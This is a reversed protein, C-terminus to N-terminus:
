KFGLKKLWGSLGFTVSKFGTWANPTVTCNECQATLDKVAQDAGGGGHTIFPIVTKGSLDAQTIFSSVAPAITGWWTPSGVFVVDYSSTDPLAKLEPRFNNNIEQKAQETAAHYDTPYSHMTHIEFLDGGTKEQIEQAVKKTNGSWSYYAILVKHNSQATTEATASHRYLGIGVLGALVACFLIYKM